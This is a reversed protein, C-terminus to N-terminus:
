GSGFLFSPPDNRVDDFVEDQVLTGKIGLERLVLQRDEELLVPHGLERSGSNAPHETIQLLRANQGFVGFEGVVGLRVSPALFGRNFALFQAGFAIRTAQDFGVGNDAEGIADLAVDHSSHAFVLLKSKSICVFRM